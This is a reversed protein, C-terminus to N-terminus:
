HAQTAMTVIDDSTVVTLNTAAYHVMETYAAMIRQQEDTTRLLSPDPANLNWPPPLPQGKRNGNIDYYFSNWGEAGARLFNNEHILCTIFPARPYQHSEWEALGQQLLLTPNSSSDGRAVANWWFNDKGGPGTIRTVGIDSPRALLGNAYAYPQEVSTGEEHYLLTAKAGLQAYVRQATDKLTKGNPAPAVTPKRGFVQSVYTYGGPHSRDLDGTKLDLAYTEYDMLTKFLEDGTLTKIRADFGQYLPHPPRVHYSLTMKSSNLRAIVEPRHQEYMRTSEPTIYFDGHIGEKEFLDILKLVTDASEDYHVWDNINIIFSVYARATKTPVPAAALAPPAAPPAEPAATIPVAAQVPATTTTRSLSYGVVGVGVVGIAGIVGLVFLIVVLGTGNKM